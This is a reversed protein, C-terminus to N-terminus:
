IWCLTHIEPDKVRSQLPMWFVPGVRQHESRLAPEDCWIIGQVGDFAPPPRKLLSGAITKSLGQGHMIHLDRQRQSRTLKLDAVSESLPVFEVWGVLDLMDITFTGILCLRSASM